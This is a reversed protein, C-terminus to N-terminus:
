RTRYVTVVRRPRTGPVRLRPQQRGGVYYRPRRRRRRTRLVATLALLVTLAGGGAALVPAQNQRLERAKETATRKAATAKDRARSRVDAKTALEDATESMRVRTAEIEERIEGPDQGM